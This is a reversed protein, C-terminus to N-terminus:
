VADTLTLGTPPPVRVYAPAPVVDIQCAANFEGESEESCGTLEYLRSGADAFGDVRIPGPAGKVYRRTALTYRFPGGAARRCGSPDGLCSKYWGLRGALFSPGILSQGSLGVVQLAVQWGSRDALDVLRLESQGIGSCGRCSYRVTMALNKGWLELAGVSRDTTPGCVRDADGCRRRPLGPLRTSPRSRPATLTRTYVVPSANQGRGYVRTWAIQGRWLTPHVDDNHADNANRVAHEGAAADLGLVFLDCGQPAVTMHACRQYILAPRGNSDPGIDADFPMASTAVPVLEVQAADARRVALSWRASTADFQSFVITGAYERVAGPAGPMAIIQAM